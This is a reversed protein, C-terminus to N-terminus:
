HEVHDPAAHKGLLAYYFGDMGDEGPMRQRGPHAARGYRDDLPLEAADTTRALFAAIRIRVPVVFVVVLREVYPPQTRNVVSLLM